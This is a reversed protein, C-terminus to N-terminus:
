ILDQISVIEVLDRARTRIEKDLTLLPVHFEWATGVIIADMGALRLESTLDLYQMSRFTTLDIWSISRFSVLRIGVQKALEDDATRRAIAAVVELLVTVPVIAKHKERELQALLRFCNDSFTEGGRFAAVFVSSDIVFRM